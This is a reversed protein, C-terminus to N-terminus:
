AELYFLLLVPFCIYIKVENDISLNQQSTNLVYVSSSGVPHSCCLSLSISFLGSNLFSYHTLGKQTGDQIISWKNYKGCLSFM